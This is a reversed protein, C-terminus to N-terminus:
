LGESAPERALDDSFAMVRDRGSRKAANMAWDAKDLLEDKTRADRPFNAIGISVTVARREGDVTDAVSRCIREAVERAGTEGSEVLALVFEDGGYRAALDVRRSCQELVRAVRRLTEDGAKHGRADNLTKFRDIDIYLLSLENEREHLRVLEEELREHLYRHNYLGTLGDSIAELEVRSGRRTTAQLMSALTHSLDTHLQQLGPSEVAPLDVSLAGVIAGDVARIPAFGSIWVGYQDANLANVALDRGELAATLQDCPLWPDGCRSLDDDSSDLVTVCERDVMAFSTLFRVSPYSRRFSRLNTTMAGFSPREEDARTRLLSHEAPDILRTAEAALASAKRRRQELRALARLFATVM